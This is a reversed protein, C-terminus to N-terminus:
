RRRRPPPPPPPPAKKHRGKEKVSIIAAKSSQLRAENPIPPLAKEKLYEKPLDLLGVSVKLKLTEHSSASYKPNLFVNHNNAEFINEEEPDEVLAQHSVSLNHSTTHKHFDSKSSLRVSAVRTFTLSDSSSLNEASELKFNTLRSSLTSASAISDSSVNANKMLRSTISRSGARKLWPITLCKMAAKVINSAQALKEVDQNVFSDDDNDSSGTDCNVVVNRLVEILEGAKYSPNLDSLESFALMPYLVKLYTLALLASDGNTDVSYSNDNLERIFIDVLIKVDNLYLLKASYSSTFILYLFKLMLIKIIHSEERNMHYVLLNTFGCIGNITDKRQTLLGDFVKNQLISTSLSKMMYQENILLLLKFEEYAILKTEDEFDDGNLEYNNFNDNSLLDRILTPILRTETLGAFEDDSLLVVHYLYQFVIDCNFKLMVYSAHTSDKREIHSSIFNAIISVLGLLKLTKFLADDEVISSLDCDAGPEGRLKLLLLMVILLMQKLHHVETENDGPVPNSLASVLGLIKGLCLQCNKLFLNLSLLQLAYVLCAHYSEPLGKLHDVVLKLFTSLNANCEASDSNVLIPRLQDDLGASHELDSSPFTTVPLDLTSDDFDLPLSVEFMPPCLRRFQNPTHFSRKSIPPIALCKLGLYHVTRMPPVM